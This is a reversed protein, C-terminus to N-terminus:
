AETPFTETVKGSLTQFPATPSLTGAEQACSAAALLAVVISGIGRVTKVRGGQTVRDPVGTTVCTEWRTRLRWTATSLAAGYSNGIEPKM